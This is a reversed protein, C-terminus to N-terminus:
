MYLLVYTIKVCVYGGGGGCVCVCMRRGWALICVLSFPDGRLLCLPCFCSVNCYSLMFSLLVLFIFCQVVFQVAMNILMGFSKMEQTCLVAGVQTLTGFSMLQWISM